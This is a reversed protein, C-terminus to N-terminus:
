GRTIFSTSLAGREKERERGGEGGGKEMEERKGDVDRRIEVNRL